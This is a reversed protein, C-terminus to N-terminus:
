AKTVNRNVNKNNVNIVDKENFLPLGQDHLDASPAEYKTNYSPNLPHLPGFATVRAKAEDNGLDYHTGDGTRM